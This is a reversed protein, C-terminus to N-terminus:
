RSVVAEEQCCTVPLMTGCSKNVFSMTRADLVTGSGVSSTWGACPFHSAGPQVWAQLDQTFRVIEPARIVEDALCMRARNGFAAQCAGHLGVLGVHASVAIASFGVFQTKIAPASLPLVTAALLWWKANVMAEELTEM